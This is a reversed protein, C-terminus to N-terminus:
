RNRQSFYKVTEQLLNTNFPLKRCADIAKSLHYEMLEQTYKQGFLQVLNVKNTDKAVDKGLEGADGTKDLLDDRMQFVLGSHHAYEKIYEIEEPSKHKLIMLPVLAAEIAVATKLHYMFLINDLSADNKEFHLDLNQGLCINQIADTVYATLTIIDEPLYYNQLGQIIEIGELLMYIGTLEVSSAQFIIHAAPKGRRTDSDDQWPLDDLLLSATQFLESALILPTIMEPSTNLSEALMLTLAPRLRKGGSELSYKMIQNFENDSEIKKNEVFNMILDNIMDIRDLIFTQPDIEFQNRNITIQNIRKRIKQDASSLKNATTTTFNTASIIFKRLEPPLENGFKNLVENTQNKYRSLYYVLFVAQSHSLISESGPHINNAIYADYAFIDYLPNEYQNPTLTFTTIRKAKSDEIYDVFDDRLQHVIMSNICLKYFDPDVEKRAILNAIVRTMASKIMVDPYIGKLNLTKNDDPNIQTERHQSIYLSEAAKYLHPYVSIPYNIRFLNYLTKMESALPHDPLLKTNLSLGSNLGELIVEHLRNRDKLSLYNGKLDHLTDDIIAYAAGYVYGGPLVRSIQAKRESPDDNLVDFAAIVNVGLMTRAIKGMAGNQIVKEPLIKYLREWSKKISDIEPSNGTLLFNDIYKLPDKNAQKLVHKLKKEYPRYLKTFQSLTEPNIVEAMNRIGFGMLEQQTQNQEFDSRNKPSIARELRALPSFDSKIGDLQLQCSNIYNIIVDPHDDRWKYFQELTYKVGPLLKDIGLDLQSFPYPEYGSVNEKENQPM